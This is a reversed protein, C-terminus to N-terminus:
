RLNLRIWLRNILPLSRDLPALESTTKMKADEVDNVIPAADISFKSGSIFLPPKQVGKLPDDQHDL